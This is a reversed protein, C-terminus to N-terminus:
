GNGVEKMRKSANAYIAEKVDHVAFPQGNVQNLQVCNLLLRDRLLTALQGTNLEPVLVRDYQALLAGLNKPLPNIYRLHIQAVAHGERLAEKVAQYVAGYTSGWAIVALGHGSGQELTQEPIFDAVSAVKHSRMDTM